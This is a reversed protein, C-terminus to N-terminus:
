RGHEGEPGLTAWAVAASLFALGSLAALVARFAQNFAARAAEVLQAADAPALGEPAVLEMLPEPGVRHVHDIIGVPLHDIRPELAMMFVPVLIPGVAAVSLLGAVRSAANNVASAIGAHQDDVANMVTTTLPAICIAMGLGLVIVGPMYTMTYPTGTEPWALLLLGVGALAPGIVLPPRPGYKDILTGSWRSLMFLMAPFPLFSAGAETASYGHVRILGLPIVFLAGGLAGYLLLTLFNAAAFQRLKLLAPPLMPAAIRTEVRLFLGLLLIGGVLLGFIMLGEAGPEGLAILGWTLAGLGLIVLIAGLMDPSGKAQEDRSEPLFLLTFLLCLSAIPLNLWFAAPWSMEDVLWGGLIPGFATTMAAFASWAGIARGRIERPYAASLIALSNPVLLASALGQAARSLILIDATPSLACAISALAFAFVGIAFVLRRGYRDGAAGGVLMVASLFLLYGNAVWQLDAVSAHLDRQIAPLAVNVVTTDIFALSSGMVTTALVLARQTRSLPPTEPEGPPPPPQIASGAPESHHQPM